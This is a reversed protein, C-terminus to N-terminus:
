EVPVFDTADAERKGRKLKTYPMSILKYSRLFLENTDADDRSAEITQDLIEVKFKENAIYKFEVNGKSLVSEILAKLEDTANDLEKNLMGGVKPSAFIIEYTYDEPFYSRLILYSRLLKKKLNKITREKNQYNLGGEHYAVDIAYVRKEIFNIGLVDIEAQKLFQTFSSKIIRGVFNDKSEGMPDGKAYGKSLKMFVEHAEQAGKLYMAWQTSSKWNTQYVTCKKVHKLYSLCLSEGIEIKMFSTQKLIIIHLDLFFLAPLCRIYVKSQSAKLSSYQPMESFSLSLKLVQWAGVGRVWIM